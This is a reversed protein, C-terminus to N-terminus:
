ETEWEKELARQCEICVVSFASAFTTEARSRGCEPCDPSM